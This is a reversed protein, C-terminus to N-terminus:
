RALARKAAERAARDFEFVEELSSIPAFPLKDLAEAICESIRGFPIEDNLFAAVAVENAGNIIVARNGGEKAADMAYRLCPFAELDPQGFTLKTLTKFDLAPAPCPLREPYTLAYQIPLRMDPSALQAIVSGDIFEVASHIVSERQVLVEIQDPSLSYLHMAELFEFGKNMLTASDVTIKAGMTWNPHRLADARTYFYCEKASKGYFPGGSATLLIKRVSARNEGNLCQFIAGHESDVPLIACGQKKAKEMVLRGACVLTEKNALALDRRADLAAMTPRLGAIGVMATVATDALAAAECVASEGGGVRIETDALSISLQKAAEEDFVAVFRPRFRRAQAELTTINKGAALAEVRLGLKEAVDLTQTGISGTSGLVSITKM